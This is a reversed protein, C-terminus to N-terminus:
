FVQFHSGWGLHRSELQLLRKRPSEKLQLDTESSYISIMHNWINCQSMHFGASVATEYKLALSNINTLHGDACLCEARECIQIKLPKYYLCFYINQSVDQCPANNGFVMNQVVKLMDACPFQGNCSCFFLSERYARGSFSNLSQQVGSYFHNLILIIIGCLYIKGNTLQVIKYKWNKQKLLFVQRSTKIMYQFYFLFVLFDFTKQTIMVIRNFHINNVQEFIIWNM